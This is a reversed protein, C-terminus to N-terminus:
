LHSSLGAVGLCRRRASTSAATRAMNSLAFPNCPDGRNCASRRSSPQTTVLFVTASEIRRCHRTARFTLCLLPNVLCSLVAGANGSRTFRSKVAAPGFRFHHPSIVSIGVPLPFSYRAVTISRYERRSSAAAVLRRQSASNHSCAILIAAVTRPPLDLILLTTNWM